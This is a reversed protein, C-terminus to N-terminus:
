FIILNNTSIEHQVFWGRLRSPWHRPSRMRGLAFSIRRLAPEETPIEGYIERNFAEIIMNIEAKHKPFCGSLRSGYEATTESAIPPRGSRRGWCLLGAYVTAASDVSGLLSLARSWLGQLLIKLLYLWKLPGGSSQPYPRDLPNRKLLWRIMCKILYGCVGIVMLGIIGILGWSLVQLLSEEWSGTPTPLVINGGADTTGHSGTEIGFRARGFIFRLIRVIIPGLPASTEKIVGHASDALQTLYPFTLLILAAGCLVVITAFGLIIGIGHYGALFAKKVDDQGRTLSISLLSFLFFAVVLFGTAPDELTPGGKLQVLFKILLLLFFAGLGKDFQLCVPFYNRPNKEFTRGGIWFLLLCCLVPLLIFWQQPAKLQRSLDVLWSGTFFSTERFFLRYAMLVAALAFGSTQILVTQIRRWNRRRSLRTFFAASVFAGLAVPLPFPLQIISLTLFNSWAFRWAIEMGASTLVLLNDKQSKM